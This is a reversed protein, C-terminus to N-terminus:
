FSDVNRSRCTRYFHHIGLLLTNPRTYIDSSKSDSLDAKVVPILCLLIYIKYRSTSQQHLTTDIDDERVSEDDIEGESQSYGDEESARELADTYVTSALSDAVSMSTSPRTFVGEEHDQCCSQIQTTMRKSYRQHSGRKSARSIPRSRIAAEGWDNDSDSSDEMDLCYLSSLAGPLRFSRQKNLTSASCSPGDSGM